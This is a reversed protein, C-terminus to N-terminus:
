RCPRQPESLLSDAQLALCRPETGANPLDGPPPCPLGSWHEQRSFGMSLPTQPSCDRTHCLTLCWQAVSVKVKVQSILGHPEPPPLQVQNSLCFYSGPMMIGRAHPPAWPPTWPRTLVMLTSGQSKAPSFVSLLERKFGPLPAAPPETPLLHNGPAIADCVHFPCVGASTM